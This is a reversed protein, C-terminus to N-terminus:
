RTCGRGYLYTGVPRELENVFTHVEEDPEAEAALHLLRALAVAAAWEAFVPRVVQAPRQDLGGVDGAAVGIVPRDDLAHAGAVAAFAAALDGRDLDGAASGLRDPVHEGV